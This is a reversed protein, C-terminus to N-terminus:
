VSKAHTTVGPETKPRQASRTRKRRQALLEVGRKKWHHLVTANARQDALTCLGGLLVEPDLDLLGALDVWQGAQQRQKRRAERQLARLQRRLNTVKADEAKRKHKHRHLQTEIAAQARTTM